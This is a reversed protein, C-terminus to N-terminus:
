LLASRVPVLARGAAPGPLAPRWVIRGLGMCNM